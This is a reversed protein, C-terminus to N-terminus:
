PSFTRAFSFLFGHNLCEFKECAEERWFSVFLGPYILTILTDCVTMLDLIRFPFILVPSSNSGCHLCKLAKEPPEPVMDTLTSAACTRM